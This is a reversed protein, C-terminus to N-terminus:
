EWCEGWVAREAERAAAIRDDMDIWEGDGLAGMSHCLDVWVRILLSFPPKDESTRARRRAQSRRDGAVGISLESTGEAEVWEYVIQAYTGFGPLAVFGGVAARKVGGDAHFVDNYVWNLFRGTAERISEPLVMPETVPQQM